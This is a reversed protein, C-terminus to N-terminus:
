VDFFVTAEYGADTQEVTLQHYTAAKLETGPLPETSPAWDLHAVVSPGNSAVEVEAIRAHDRDILYIVENLLDVLTGGPDGADLPVVVRHGRGRRVGHAGLIELLGQIANEFVQQITQGRVRLGIDATHELLEFPPREEPAPM